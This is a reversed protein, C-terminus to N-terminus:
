NLIVTFVWALKGKTIEPIWCEHLIGWTNHYELDVPENAVVSFVTDLTM